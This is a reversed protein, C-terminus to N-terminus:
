NNTKILTPMRRRKFAIAPCAAWGVHSNAWYHSRLYHWLNEVPNLEPSYPPLVGVAGHFIGQNAKLKDRNQDVENSRTAQKRKFDPRVVGDPYVEIASSLQKQQPRQSFADIDKERSLLFELFSINKYHCTHCLSLLVLYEKLGTEKLRGPNSDRYYAFRRIANESNNNNWPVGDYEIFTFLKDQYKILRDRYLEATESRYMQAALFYFFKAVDRKHKKLHRYKLGHEDITTIIQRLLIGFPGTISQLEEDFPNNLLDQNMDRILHILCKQQRCKLSDYAAYFDSVLVGKFDMLLDQLFDGERTTRHMYVVYESTVFVWVYAKGNRLKVETEDIQLLGGSLIIDLLKKYCPEYFRAMMSRFRLIEQPYLTLGFFDKAMKSVIPCGIRHAVHEHM